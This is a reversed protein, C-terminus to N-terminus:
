FTVSKNPISLDMKSTSRSRHRKAAGGDEEAARSLSRNRKKSM